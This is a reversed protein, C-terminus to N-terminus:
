IEALSPVLAGGIKEIWQDPRNDTPMVMVQQVGVAAYQAM